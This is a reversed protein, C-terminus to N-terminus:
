SFSSSSSISLIFLRLGFIIWVLLGSYVGTWKLQVPRRTFVHESDYELFSDKYQALPQDCSQLHCGHGSHRFNWNMNSLLSDLSQRRTRM